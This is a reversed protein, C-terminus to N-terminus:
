NAPILSPLMSPLSRTTITGWGASLGAPRTGCLLPHDDSLAVSGSGHARVPFSRGSNLQPLLSDWLRRASTQGSYLIGHARWRPRPPVKRGTEPREGTGEGLEQNECEPTPAQRERALVAMEPLSLAELGQSQGKPLWATHRVYVEVTPVVPSSMSLM